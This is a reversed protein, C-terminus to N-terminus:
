QQASDNVPLADVKRRVDSGSAGGCSIQEEANLARHVAVDVTMRPNGHGARRYLRYKGAARAEDRACSEGGPQHRHSVVLHYIKAAAMVHPPRFPYFGCFVEQALEEAVAQNHTMRYMFSIMPRCYKEVLYDFAGDDGAAPVRLMVEADSIAAGGALFPAFGSSSQPTTGAMLMSRDIAATSVDTQVGDNDSLQSKKVNDRGASGEQESPSLSPKVSNSEFTMFLSSDARFDRQILPICERAAQLAIVRGGIGLVGCNLFELSCPWPPTEGVPRMVSTMEGDPVQVFLIAPPTDRSVRRPTSATGPAVAASLRAMPFNSNTFVFRVLPIKPTIM